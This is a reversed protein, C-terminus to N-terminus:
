MLSRQRFLEGQSDEAEMLPKGAKQQEWLAVNTTKAKIEGWFTLGNVTRAERSSGVQWHSGGGFGPGEARSVGRWGVGKVGSLSNGERRGDSSQSDRGVGM